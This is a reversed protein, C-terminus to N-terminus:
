VFLPSRGTKPREGKNTTNM